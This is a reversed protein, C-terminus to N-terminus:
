KNQLLCIVAVNGKKFLRANAHFENAVDNHYVNKSDLLTFKDTLWAVLTADKGKRYNLSYEYGLRTLHQKYVDDFHDVEQLCVVDARTEEIEGVIRKYRYEFDQLVCPDIGRYYTALRM